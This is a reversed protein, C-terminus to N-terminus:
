VEGQKGLAEWEQFLVDIKQNLIRKETEMRHLKEYETGCALMSTEIAAIQSELSEIEAEISKARREKITRENRRRKALRFVEKVTSATSDYEKEQVSSKRKEQLLHDYDGEFIAIRGDAIEGIRTAVKNILYRDHSVFVLSGTFQQLVEELLERSGIDLHNTPEDLILTNIEQQMILCLRLRTREGGSLLRIPKDVDTGCFLFSALASRAQGMTRDAETMFAALVSADQNPFALTQDLYGARIGEGVYVEGSDPQLGQGSGIQGLILKILTTKGCGNGGIIALKDRHKVYLDLGRLVKRPGYSKHVNALRLVTKSSKKMASLRLNITRVSKPRQVKRLNQLEKALERNRASLFASHNRQNRAINKRLESKLRRIEKDIKSYENYAAKKRTEVELVYNSYNCAFAAMRGNELVLIRSIVRDLFYRDHSVILAAGPYRRLSDELWEVSQMDLHNTPEDLLMVDPKQLLIEGLAVRTREGGSLAQFPKGLLDADIGLGLCVWKIKNGIEYGGDNEFEERMLGYQHLMTPAEAPNTKSLKTELLAIREELAILRRFPQRLIDLATMDASYSPLQDVCCVKAGKRTTVRSTDGSPQERGTLIKFLTSKGAGNNGILGVREGPSLDFSVGDLVNDVTYRKVLNVVSIESM